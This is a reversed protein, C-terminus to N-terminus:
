WRMGGMAKWGDEFPSTPFAYQPFPAEMSSTGSTLGALGVSCWDMSQDELNQSAERGVKFLQTSGGTKQCNVQFVM